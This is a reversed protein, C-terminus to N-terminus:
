RQCPTFLREVSGGAPQCARRDVSLLAVAIMAALALAILIASKM